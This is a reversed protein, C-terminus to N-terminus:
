NLYQNINEEHESLTKALHIKGQHDSLYYWFPSNQSARAVAEVSGVSPNCIPGPPLSKNQYTNYSSAAEKIDTASVKPWWVCQDVLNDSCRLSALVYQVSADVQLPWGHNVRNLLVEAVAQRDAPTKAEREVLSALIILEEEGLGREKAQSLIDETVKLNYNKDIIQWFVEWDTDKPVLYSDPVLYGENERLSDLWDSNFNTLKEKLVLAIQEARTGPVITVWVDSSGCTLNDIVEGTTMTSFLHFDGAQIKRSLGRRYVTALFVWSNRVLGEKELRVAISKLSEGPFIVFTQEQSEVGVPRLNFCYFGLAFLFSFLFLLVLGLSFTWRRFLNKIEIGM